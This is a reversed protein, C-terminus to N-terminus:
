RQRVGYRYHRTVEYAFLVDEHQAGAGINHIVHCRDTGCVPIDFVLGIHPVGLSLRWTVIDGPKYDAGHRTVPLRGHRTFFTQLHPVRRHDVNPDPRRLGWNRPYASSSVDTFVGCRTEDALEVAVGAQWPGGAVDARGHLDEVRSGARRTFSGVIQDCHSDSFARVAREGRRGADNGGTHDADDLCVRSFLEICEDSGPHCV